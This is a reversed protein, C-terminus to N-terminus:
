CWLWLGMHTPGRGRGGCTGGGGCRFTSRGITLQERMLAGGFAQRALQFGAVWFPASALAFLIGGAIFVAVVLGLGSCEQAIGRRM